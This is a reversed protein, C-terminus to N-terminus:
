AGPGNTVKYDSHPRDNRIDPVKVQAQLVNASTPAVAPSLKPLETSPQPLVASGEKIPPGGNTPKETAKETAELSAIGKDLRDIYDLSADLRAHKLAIVKEARKELEATKELIPKAMDDLRRESAGLEDTLAFFEGAM